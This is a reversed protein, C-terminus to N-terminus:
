WGTRGSYRPEVQGNAESSMACEFWKAEHEGQATEVRSKGNLVVAPETPANRNTADWATASAQPSLTVPQAFLFVLGLGLLLGGAGGAATITTRGLGAPRVGAEVGDIRSIVSASRAGAQRARADALNKRASDVLKTHNEVAALLNAYQAREGALRSLRERGALLRASLAQERDANLALDLEVGQIAVAVEKNLQKRILEEAERAAIVYPHKESRSGLLGASKVRADVLADKLRSVAPQSRLLSGPTALLQQPDNQAAVLLKLLRRNERQQVDNARREAEIAQLEQALESQGGTQSNLTRLEALDAGLRAEFESLQKTKSTLDNDAMAVTRELEAVMGQARQDRLQQM